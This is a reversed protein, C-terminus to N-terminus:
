RRLITNRSSTVLRVVPELVLSAWVPRHDSAGRVDRVKGAPAVDPVGLGRVFIHDWSFISITDGV